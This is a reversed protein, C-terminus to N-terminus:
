VNCLKVELSSCKCVNDGCVGNNGGNSQKGHNQALYIMSRLGELSAVDPLSDIFSVYGRMFFIARMMTQATSMRVKSLTSFAEAALGGLLLASGTFSNAVNFAQRSLAAFVATPFSKSFTNFVEHM